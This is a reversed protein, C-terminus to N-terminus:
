DVVCVVDPDAGNKYFEGAKLGAAIAAANNAYAQLNQLQAIIRNVENRWKLIERYDDTKPVAITM